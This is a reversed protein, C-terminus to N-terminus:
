YHTPHTLLHTPPTLLHTPHTLLPNSPNTLPNSPNTLPNSPNTLPNSPNTLPNSPNTLPNSPNTRPDSTPYQIQTVHLVYLYTCIYMRVYMCVHTAPLAISGYMAAYASNTFCKTCQLFSETCMDSSNRGSSSCMRGDNAPTHMYTPELWSLLFILHVLIELALHSLQCLWVLEQM